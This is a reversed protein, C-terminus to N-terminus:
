QVAILGGNNVIVKKSKSLDTKLVIFIEVKKKYDGNADTIEVLPDPPKFNISYRTSDPIFKSIKVGGTMNITEIIVDGSDYRGFPANKDAYIYYLEPSSKNIYVGYGGAPFGGGCLSCPVAAMTMGEVRRIDQVLKAAARQLAINGKFPQYSFVSVLTLIVIIVTVVLLEVLTFGASNIKRNDLRGLNKM